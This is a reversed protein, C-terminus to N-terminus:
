RFHERQTAASVAILHSSVTRTWRCCVACCAFWVSTYPRFVLFILSVLNPWHSREAAYADPPNAGLCLLYSM